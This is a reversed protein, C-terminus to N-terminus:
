YYLSVNTGNWCRQTRSFTNRIEQNFGETNVKKNIEVELKM